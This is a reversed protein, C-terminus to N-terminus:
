VLLIFRIVPCIFTAIVQFIGDAYFFASVQQNRILFWWFPVSSVQKVVIGILSNGLIGWASSMVVESRFNLHSVIKFVVVFGLNQTALITNNHAVFM